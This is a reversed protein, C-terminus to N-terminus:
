NVGVIRSSVQAIDLGLLVAAARQYTSIQGAHKTQLSQSDGKETKFDVVDAAVPTGNTDLHILVRDFIGAVWADNLVCEFARERWLLFPGAPKSFVAKVEPSVLLKRTSAPLAAGDELWEIQALASHVETGIRAAEASFFVPNAKASPGLSHPTGHLPKPLIPISVDEVDATKGLLPRTLYWDRDGLEYSTETYGLSLELLKAFNKCTSNPKIKKTLLYLGHRPRTMAVYATCLEGYASTSLLDMRAENLVPDNKSIEGGPLLMGWLEGLRNKELALSGASDDKALPEADLGSVITMDLTLGKAQHVTMVRVVGAGEPEQRQYNEIHHVFSGIDDSMQRTADFQTAATLFDHARSTLFPESRLEMRNLWAQTAGTFGERAITALAQERFKFEGEDLMAAAFMGSLKDEPSAVFRFASLLAVGLPNDTCPNAKGEVAVPIGHSQLLAALAEVSKNSRKLAACSWGREWPRTEQLISVIERDIPNGTDEDDDDKEVPQWRVYGTNNSLHEAVEHAVWAQTWESTTKEPLQLPESLYTLHGFVRNIVEIIKPDSRYSVDLPDAKVIREAGPRNYHRAIEFFLRPDGGRWSYLAQKTDGVYFFSRTGDTDQIIDDVLGHLVKWQLRSTDQFEDLLWHDFKTDLRYGVTARWDPSDVQAALVSTIDSFTLQGLSRVLRNYTVEFAGLVGHLARSRRLLDELRPKILAHLLERRAQSVAANLYVRAAKAGGTPLYEAETEKDISPKKEVFTKVEKSWSREPSSERVAQLNKEWADMAKQDLMPHTTIIADWLADAATSVDGAQLIACGDPWISSADGWVTDPPTTLFKDHLTNVSKLLTDFVQRESQKRSQQRVLDLFDQFREENEGQERFLSALTERCAAQRVTESLVSFDGALGTELPFSRAIRGFLSDITGMCLRHMQSTLVVLLERCRAADLAMNTDRQLTQLSAPNTAADALRLFVAAMFEGAAKRTFTLAAIKGPEVGMALLTITRVTLRYTKGSGANAILMEHQIM